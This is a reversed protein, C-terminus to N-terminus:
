RNSSSALTWSRRVETSVKWNSPASAYRAPNLEGPVIAVVRCWGADAGALKVPLCSVEFGYPRGISVLNTLRELHCYEHKRGYFHAPWLTSQEGTRVYEDLMRLFPADFGFSDVGIVRIGQGVLYETADASVGRFRQFYGPRGIERDGATYLLVIDLPKLEYGIEALAAQVEEKTVAEDAPGRTLDLLVGDGHCWELPVECITRGPGGGAVRSGYHFPADMHTGTHTTLTYHMLSLGEGAPFDKHTVGRGLRHRLLRLWRDVRGRALLYAYSQGLLDAGSRHNIIKRLVPEPELQAPDVAVSLDVIRRRAGRGRTVTAGRAVPDANM